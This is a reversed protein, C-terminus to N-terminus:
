TAALLLSSASNRGSAGEIRTRSITSYLDTEISQNISQSIRVAINAGYHTNTRAHVDENVVISLAPFGGAQCNQGGGAAVM